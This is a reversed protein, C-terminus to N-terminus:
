VRRFHCRCNIHPKPPLDQLKYIEMDRDECIHCTRNDLEAIWQILVVGDDKAAQLFAEDEVRITFNRIVLAIGKLANDIEQLPTPSGIMAEKLRDFRRELENIFVVKTTADYSELLADVWQESLSELDSLIRNQKYIKRALLLYALRVQEIVEEYVLNVSNFVNLEDFSLLGKLKAFLEIIQEDLIDAIKDANEYPTM